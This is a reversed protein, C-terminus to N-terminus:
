CSPMRYLDEWEFYGRGATNVRLSGQKLVWIIVGYAYDIWVGVQEGSVGLLRCNKWFGEIRRLMEVLRAPPLKRLYPDLTETSGCHSPDIELLSPLPNATPQHLHLHLTHFTPLHPVYIPLLDLYLLGLDAKCPIRDVLTVESSVSQDDRFPYAGKDDKQPTIDEKRSVQRPTTMPSPPQVNVSPARPSGTGTPTRQEPEIDSKAAHRQDPRGKPWRLQM